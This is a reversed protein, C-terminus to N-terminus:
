TSLLTNIFARTSTFRQAISDCGFVGIIYLKGNIQVASILCQGAASTYGTKMGIAYECYYATDKRLLQNTNKWVPKRSNPGYITATHTETGIIKALTPTSLALRGMFCVDAMSTYHNSHHYGDATMFHSDNMGLQQAQRNMEDIFLDYYYKQTKDVTGDLKKGVEVALVRAADNGSRLLMAYMMDEVTMRDNRKLNATSSDSPVTSLIDGVTIQENLDLYLTAIYGTFLKTISAPYIKQHLQGKAYLYQGETQDYVFANRAPTDKFGYTLQPKLEAQYSDGCDCTYETYGGSLYSPAFVTAYYQHVHPKLTETPTATTTPEPNGQSFNLSLAIGLLVVLVLLLGTILIKINKADFLSRM